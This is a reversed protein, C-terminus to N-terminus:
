MEPGLVTGAGVAAFHDKYAARVVHKQYKGAGTRPLSEVHVVADPLWWKAVRPALHARIEDVTPACGPAPVIVALPREGWRPHPVAVVVAESVGAHEVLASELAVTSIWEGGSKVLDKARDQIMLCGSPAITVIDGTRFWGDSTWRDPAEDGPYYAAAVWPGRVELEGMTHDDWAILTGDEGRGRIEVFPAPRGQRARWAYCADAPADALESPVRSVSGLPATETMGWAHVIHVGHRSDFARVTAEPIAAGGVAMMRLASLDHGPHEDLYCLLAHCITPVGATHTVRESELLGVISAADLCPGPLVQGAGIMACAFPLGWANAHFMPVVALVRSSERLDFVDPLPLALSHLVLSRHSYLVGKSRGTTGSTYCMVAASQEDIDDFEAGDEQWSLLQAYDLTGEPVDGDDSVVVIRRDGIHPRVAEFVPWLVKDVILVRDDAHKIIYSLEEPHLRINLTHLVAGSAPIGYYAQLHRAHNWCFTAVRDGCRVGLARLAAALRRADGLCEDYTTRSIGRDARRSIIEKHPFLSRTRRLLAPISLPMDMMLGRM